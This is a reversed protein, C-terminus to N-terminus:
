NKKNLVERIDKGLGLHEHWIRDREEKRAQDRMIEFAILPQGTGDALGADYGEKRAEEILEIVGKDKCFCTELADTAERMIATDSGSQIREGMSITDAKIRLRKILDENYNSGHKSM